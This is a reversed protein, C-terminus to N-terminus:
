AGKMANVYATFRKSAQPYHFATLSRGNTGYWRSPKSNEGCLIWQGRQLKIEGSLLKDTIPWVNIAKTYKMKTM